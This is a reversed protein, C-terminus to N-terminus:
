PSRRIDKVARYLLPIAHDAAIDAVTFRDKSFASLSIRRGDPRRIVLAMNPSRRNDTFYIIIESGADPAQDRIMGAQKLKEVILNHAPREDDHSDIEVTFFYFHVGTLVKKYEESMWYYYFLYGIIVLVPVIIAFFLGM